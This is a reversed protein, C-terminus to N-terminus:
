RSVVYRRGYRRRMKDDLQLQLAGQYHVNRFKAAYDYFPLSGANKGSSEMKRGEELIVSCTKALHGHSESAWLSTNVSYPLFGELNYGSSFFEFVSRDSLAIESRLEGSADVTEKILILDKTFMEVLELMAVDDYKLPQPAGDSRHGERSLRTDSGLAFNLENLTLPRQSFTTWQVIAVAVDHGGHSDFNMGNVIQSYLHNLGSPSTMIAAKLDILSLGAADTFMREKWSALEYKAATFFGRSRARISKALTEVQDYEL